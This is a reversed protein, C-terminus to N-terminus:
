GHRVPRCSECYARPRGRGVQAPLEAGCGACRGVTRWEAAQRERAAAEAAKRELEIAHEAQRRAQGEARAAAKAAAAEAARRTRAEDDEQRQAERGAEYRTDRSAQEAAALEPPILQLEVTPGVLLRIGIRTRPRWTWHEWVVLGVVPAPEVAGLRALDDAPVYGALRRGDASRIAIARPDVPNSPDPVLRVIRGVGFDTGQADPHYPIGAVRIERGGAARLEDPYEDDSRLMRGTRPDELRVGSSWDQVDRQNATYIAAPVVAGGVVVEALRGDPGSDAGPAPRIGAPPRRSRGFLRQLFGAM